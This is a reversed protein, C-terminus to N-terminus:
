SHAGSGATQGGKEGSPGVGGLGGSGQPNLPEVMRKLERLEDFAQLPTLGEIKVERLRDVAPHKMYETFLSLQGSGASAQAAGRLHSAGTPRTDARQSPPKSRGSTTLDGTPGHHHVALNELVQRARVVTTAPLGALKAVNIGYSRDTRGPLIRHLFVIEDGWERVSVHLNRVRGPLLEELETLEHYHTAFLVRPGGLAQGNGASAGNARSALDEAIAWALSLGDLTSTGRGIEDLIVLSRQTCHHLIRATETMEVMFTSQGAHLADDAGIRTFIRDTVGVTMSGAPVMSGAHALLTLLGATRIFTSKGAMNPGTILALHAEPGSASAGLELDNPVFGRGLREDLVPHRGQEIRLVPEDVIQPCVWQRQVAKDALCVLADLEAAVDAFRTLAPILTVCAACLDEFIAVERALARSEASMVKTEFEKLEPTIYREANKLTQKRSFGDPARRAQGAPLEIYYGFIKNYGVKLSPLDHEAILRAQYDAMWGAADERLRRAEDLEADVGARVLGGERMHAPPDDVCTAAIRGRMGALESALEMVVARQRALAPAGEIAEGIPEIQSVSRGLAVLDRPTARGLALRAGIRAVDQVNELSGGLREACVRDEMLTRVSAQRSRIAEADGLPRCLWERLTRRGMATRCGPMGPGTAFLGLLSGDLDAGGSSGGVGVSAGGGSRITRLVELARLTTADLALHGRQEVRRPARLHALRGTAPTRKGGAPDEGPAQTQQLYRVAAGAARVATDQESLGFGELTLVGFQKLLAERAEDLRFHWSPQPTGSVGLQEIITRVRPPPSGDATESFLLETVRRRVLEDALTSGAGGPADFLEFSGTSLDIVAASASADDGVGDFCVAALAAPAEADLLSEDVLTGPTLVRTVAREIIAGPKAEAADQTQECVAVRFGRDILKRLYSELQHHPLGCMPVGETRRTLTLGIAKSVKVADDDFMEYFDGIRFLLVCEPHARKFRYYQRMAPTDRPDPVPPVINLGAARATSPYGHIRGGKRTSGSDGLGGLGESPQLWPPPDDAPSRRLRPGICPGEEDRQVKPTDARPDFRRHHPRVRHTRTRFGASGTTRVGGAPTEIM